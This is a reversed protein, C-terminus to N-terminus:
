EDGGGFLGWDLDDQRQAEVLDESTSAGEAPAGPAGATVVERMPIDPLGVVTAAVAPDAGADVLTAWAKTKSDRERDDAEADPPIPNDHDWELGTATPGYMPLLRTNLLERWRRLRPAVIQQAFQAEAAASAARNVDDTIGLTAKHVGWGELITDRSAQRLEVFQMDRLSFNSNVWKGGEIIAVRHSNSVGQHQERWHSVVRKFDEDELAESYEIVGGPRASNRFFQRNWESTARSTDLEVLITQVVGLGRYPDWPCPKIMRMVEDLDLEIKQGDPSRYEWKAIFEYPDPVPEVRDPRVPWLELPLSRMLPNRSILVPAEGTLEFHQGSAEMLQARTMHANPREWLDICAHSTVPVRDEDLGSKATRYLTWDVAAVATTIRDVVSYLTGVGGMARLQAETGVSGALAMAGSSAVLPVPSANRPRGLTSRATTVLASVLSTV